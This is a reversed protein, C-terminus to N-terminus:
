SDVIRDIWSSGFHDDALLRQAEALPEPAIWSNLDFDEAIFGQELLFQKQSAVAALLEPSLM